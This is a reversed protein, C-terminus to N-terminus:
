IEYVQGYELQICKDNIINLNMQYVDTCADRLPKLMSKGSETM